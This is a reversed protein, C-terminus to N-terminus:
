ARVRRGRGRVGCSDPPAGRWRRRLPEAVVLLACPRLPKAHRVQRRIQAVVVGDALQHAGDERQVRARAKEHAAERGVSARSRRGGAIPRRRRVRDRRAAVPKAHQRVRRRVLRRARQPPLM